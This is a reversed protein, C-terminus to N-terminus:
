KEREKGCHECRYVRGADEAPGAYRWSHGANHYCNSEEDYEEGREDGEDDPLVTICMM